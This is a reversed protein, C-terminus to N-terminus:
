GHRRPVVSRMGDQAQTQSATQAGPPSGRAGRPCLAAPRGRLLDTPAPLAPSGRYGYREEASGKIATPQPDDPCAAVLELEAGDAVAVDVVDVEEVAYTIPWSNPCWM